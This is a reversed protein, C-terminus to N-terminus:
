WFHWYINQKFHSVLLGAGKSVRANLRSKCIKLKRLGKSIKRRARVVLARLLIKIDREAIVTQFAAEVRSGSSGLMGVSM